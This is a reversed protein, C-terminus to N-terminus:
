EGRAKQCTPCFDKDGDNLWGTKAAKERADILLKELSGETGIVFIRNHCGNCDLHMKTPPKFLAGAGSTKGADNIFRMFADILAAGNQMQEPDGYIAIAFEPFPSKGKMEAM